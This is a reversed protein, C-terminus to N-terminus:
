DVATKYSRNFGGAEIGGTVKIDQGTLAKGFPSAALVIWNAVEEPDLFRGIMSSQIHPQSAEYEERTMGEAKARGQHVPTWTHGPSISVAWGGYEAMEISCSLTLGKQAAKITTYAVANPEAVHGAVSSINVVSGSRSRESQRWCEQVLTAPGRLGVQYHEDLPDLSGWDVLKEFYFVAANNVICDIGGRSKIAARVFARSNAEDALDLLRSDVRGPYRSLLNGAVSRLKGEDRDGLVVIAGEELFRAAAASGIAGAGGTVIVVKDSLGLDM